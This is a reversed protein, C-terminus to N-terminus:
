ELSRELGTIMATNDLLLASDALCNEFGESASVDRSSLLLCAQQGTATDTTNKDIMATSCMQQDWEGETSLADSGRLNYDGCAQMCSAFDPTWLKMVYNDTSTNSPSWNCLYRFDWPDQQILSSVKVATGNVATANGECPSKIVVDSTTIPTATVTNFATSSSTKSTPTAAITVSKTVM